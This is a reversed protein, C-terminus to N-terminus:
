ATSGDRSCRPTWTPSIVWEERQVQERGAEGALSNKRAPRQLGDGTSRDGTLVFSSIRLAM